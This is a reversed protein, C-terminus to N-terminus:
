MVSHLCSWKNEFCYLIFKPIIINALRDLWMAVAYTDLTWQYQRKILITRYQFIGKYKEETVCNSWFHHHISDKVFVTSGQNDSVRNDLGKTIRVSNRIKFDWYIAQKRCFWAIYSICTDHHTIKLSTLSSIDYYLPYFLMNTYTINDAAWM